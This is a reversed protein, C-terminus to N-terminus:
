ALDVGSFVGQVKAWRLRSNSTVMGPVASAFLLPLAAGGGGGRGGRACQGKRCWVWLRPKVGEIDLLQQGGCWAGSFCVGAGADRAWVALEGGGASRSGGVWVWLGGSWWGVEIDLFNSGVVGPVALTSEPGLTVHGCQWSEGRRLSLLEPAPSQFLRDNDLHLLRPVTM